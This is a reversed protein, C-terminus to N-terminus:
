CVRPLAGLRVALYSSFRLFAPNRRNKERRLRAKGTRSEISRQTLPFFQSLRAVNVAIIATDDSFRTGLIRGLIKYSISFVLFKAERRFPPLQRNVEPGAEAIFFVAFASM